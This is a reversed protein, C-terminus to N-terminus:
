ILLKKKLLHRKKEGTNMSIKEELEVSIEKSFALPMSFMIMIAFLSIALKRM